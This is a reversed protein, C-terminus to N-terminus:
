ITEPDTSGFVRDGKKFLKVDKGASEIEGALDIELITRKTKRFGLYIRWFMPPINKFSRDKWDVPAVTTAYVGPVENDGPTPKEVERVELVDPSGYKTCVVAKM